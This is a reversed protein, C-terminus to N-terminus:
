NYCGADLYTNTLVLVFYYNSGYHELYKNVYELCKAISANVNAELCICPEVDYYWNAYAYKGDSTIVDGGLVIWSNHKAQQMIKYVAAIDWAKEGSPASIPLTLGNTNIVIEAM